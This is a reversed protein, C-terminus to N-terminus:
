CCLCLRALRDRALAQGGRAEVSTAVDNLLRDTAESSGPRLIRANMATIVGRMTLVDNDALAGILQEGASLRDEYSEALRSVRIGDAVCENSQAYDSCM